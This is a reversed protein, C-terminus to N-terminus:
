SPEPLRRQRIRGPGIVTLWGNADDGLAVVADAVHNSVETLTGPLANVEAIIVGVTPQKLAIALYGFDRDETLVIRGDDTAIALLQDDPLGRLDERVWVVDHGLLRLRRVM